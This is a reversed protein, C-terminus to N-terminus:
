AAAEVGETEGDLKSYADLVNVVQRVSGAVVAAINRAPAQILGIVQARLEDLSPLKAIATIEDATLVKSGMIGFKISLEEEKELFDILVKALSPVENLAFGTAIQGEFDEEPVPLGAEELARMMLTNKTVHLAGESKRVMARLEQMKKVSLGTYDTMIVARSQQILEVYQAILEEKRDKTLAL